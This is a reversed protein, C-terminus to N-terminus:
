VVVTTWTNNRVKITEIVLGVQQQSDSKCHVSMIQTKRTCFRMNHQNLQRWQLSLHTPLRLAELQPVFTHQQPQQPHSLHHCLTHRKTRIHTQPSPAWNRIRKQATWRKLEQKAWYNVGAEETYSCWFAKHTHTHFSLSLNVTTDNTTRIALMRIHLYTFLPHPFLCFYLTLLFLTDDKREENTATRWVTRSTTVGYFCLSLTLM